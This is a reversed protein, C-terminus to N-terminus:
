RIMMKFKRDNENSNRMKCTVTYFKHIQNRFIMQENIIPKNTLDHVCKDFDHSILEKCAFMKVGKDKIFECDKIEHEQKQVRYVYIKLAATAFKRIAKGEKEDKMLDTVKKTEEQLYHDKREGKM